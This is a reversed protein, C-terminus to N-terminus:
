AFGYSIPDCCVEAVVKVLCILVVAGAFGTFGLCVRSKCSHMRRDEEIEREVM